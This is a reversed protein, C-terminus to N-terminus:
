KAGFETSIISKVLASAHLHNRGLLLVVLNTFGLLVPSVYFNNLLIM